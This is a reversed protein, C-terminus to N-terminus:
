PTVQFPNVRYSREQYEFFDFDADDGHHACIIWALERELDTTEPKDSMM